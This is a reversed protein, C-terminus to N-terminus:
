GRSDAAPGSNTHGRMGSSRFLWIGAALAMVGLVILILFPAGLAFPQVHPPPPSDILRAAAQAVTGAIGLVVSPITGLGHWGNM